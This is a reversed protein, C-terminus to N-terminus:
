SLAFLATATTGTKYVKNCIIGYGLGLRQGSAAKTITVTDGNVTDVKVATGGTVDDVLVVFPTGPAYDVSSLDIAVANSPAAVNCVSKVSNRPSRFFTQDTEAIGTM